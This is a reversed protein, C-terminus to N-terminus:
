LFSALRGQYSSTVYEVLQQEQEDSLAAPRGSRPRASAGAARLANKVQGISFGTRSAIEQRNLRGDFFLTRIRIRDIDLLQKTHINPPRRYHNDM